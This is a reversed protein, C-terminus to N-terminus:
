TTRRAWATGRATGSTTPHKTQRTHTEAGKDTDGHADCTVGPYSLPLTWAMCRWVRAPETSM